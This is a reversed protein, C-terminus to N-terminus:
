QQQNAKLLGIMVVVGCGLGKALTHGESIKSSSDNQEGLTARWGINSGLFSAFDWDIELM